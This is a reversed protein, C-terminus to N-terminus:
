LGTYTVNGRVVGHANIVAMGVFEYFCFGYSISRPDPFEISELDILIPFVGLYEESTRMYARGSPMVKSMFIQMNWIKGVRGTDLIDKQREVDVDDRTWTLLDKYQIPNIHLADPIIDWQLIEGYMAALFEKTLGETTSIVSNAEAVVSNDTAANFLSVGNTPNGFGLTDETEALDARAKVQVRDLVNFRRIRVEDRPVLPYSAISLIDVWVRQSEIRVTPVRGRRSMVVAPVDVDTDYYPADGQGLQERLLGQRFQALYDREDKIPGLMKHAIHTLGGPTLLAQEALHNKQEVTLTELAM